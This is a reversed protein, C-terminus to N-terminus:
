YARRHPHGRTWHHASEGLATRTSGVCVLSIIQAQGEPVSEVIISTKQICLNQARTLSGAPSRDALQLSNFACLIIGVAFSLLFAPYHLAAEQPELTPLTEPVM